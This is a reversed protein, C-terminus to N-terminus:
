RRQVTRLGVTLTRASAPRVTTTPTLFLTASGDAQWYMVSLNLPRTVPLDVRGGTVADRRFARWVTVVIRRRGGVELRAILPTSTDIMKASGIRHAYHRVGLGGLLTVGQIQGGLLLEYGFTVQTGVTPETLVSPVKESTNPGYTFDAFLADHTVVPLHRVFIPLIRLDLRANVGRMVRDPVTGLDVIRASGYGLTGTALHRDECSRPFCQARAVRHAFACNLAIILVMVKMM